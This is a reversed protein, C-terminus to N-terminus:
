VLGGRSDNKQGLPLSGKAPENLASHAAKFSLLRHCLSRSLLLLRVYLNRRYAVSWVLTRTSKALSRKYRMDGALFDYERFGRQCYHRIACAHTLMGPKLHNDKEQILGSQICYVKGRHLFTYLYGIVREGARARLVDVGRVPWLRRILRQQFDVFTESGFAGEIGRSRWTADHLLALEALFSIAQEYDAAAEIVVPGYMEEYIRRSRRIQSRSKGSLTAEYDNGVITELDVYPSPREERDIGCLPLHELMLRMLASDEYGYLALRVWRSDVLVRALDAALLAGYGALHLIQNFEVAPSRHSTEDATNVFLTALPLRRLWVTRKLILCGGVTEGRCAWRVWFGSFEHGYVEIWSQMWGPSVFISADAVCEFLAPWWDPLPTNNNFAMVHREVETTGAVRPADGGM